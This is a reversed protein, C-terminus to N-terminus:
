AVNRKLVKHIEQKAFCRVLLHDSDYVDVFEALYYPQMFMPYQNSTYVKVTM